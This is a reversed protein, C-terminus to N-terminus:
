KAGAGTMPKISVTNVLPTLSIKSLKVIDSSPVCTTNGKFESSIKIELKSYDSRTKKLM